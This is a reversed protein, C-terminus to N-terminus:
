DDALLETLSVGLAEAIKAIVLLSPNGQKRELM